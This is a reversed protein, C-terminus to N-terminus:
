VGILIIKRGRRVWRGSRGGGGSGGNQPSMTSQPAGAAEFQFGGLASQIGGLGSSIGGLTKLLGPAHKQAADMVAKRAASDPPLASQLQQAKQAAARALRVFRRAIEYEQDQPSLGELELGFLGGAASGLKAGLATGVGPAVFSGLAGGVVPLAKKAIGKLIGGLKGGVGKKFFKGVKKFIKGLFQDLEQEDTIELFDAALEMEEVEDISETDFEYQGYEYQGYEGEGEEGEYYEGEEFQYMEPEFETEQYSQTRDLDHM